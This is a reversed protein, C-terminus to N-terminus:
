YVSCPKFFRVEFVYQFDKLKFLSSAAHVRIVSKHEDEFPFVSGFILSRLQGKCNNGCSACVFQSFSNTQVSVTGKVVSFYCSGPERTVKKFPIKKHIDGHYVQLQQVEDSSHPIQITFHKQKEHQSGKDPCFHYEPIPAVFCETDPIASLFPAFSTHVCGMILGHKDDPVFLKVDSDTDQLVTAEGHVRKCIYKM